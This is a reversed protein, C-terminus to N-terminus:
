PGLSLEERHWVLQSLCLHSRGGGERQLPPTQHNNRKTTQSEAKTHQMTKRHRTAESHEHLSRKKTHKFRADEQAWLVVVAQRPVVAKLPVTSGRWLATSSSLLPVESTGRLTTSGRHPM